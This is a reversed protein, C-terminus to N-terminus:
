PPSRSPAAPAFPHLIKFPAGRAFNFIPLHGIVNRILATQISGATFCHGGPLRVAEEWSKGGCPPTKKGGNAEVRAITANEVHARKSFLLM